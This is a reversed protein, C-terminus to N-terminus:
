KLEIYLIFNFYDIQKNMKLLYDLENELLINYRYILINLKIHIQRCM